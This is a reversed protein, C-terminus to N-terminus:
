SRESAPLSSALSRPLRKPRRRHLAQDGPVPVIFLTREHREPETLAMQEATELVYDWQLPTLARHAGEKQPTSRNQGKKKIMRFPNAAAAGDEVLHEFFRSSISYVQNITGQSAKYREPLAVGSHQNCSEKERRAAKSSKLSFPRWKDNPMVLDGWTSETHSSSVFRGRVIPGIWDAPPNRCFELYDEADQRKLQSFPKRKILMSWLLLREVHTRYSTFTFSNDSFSRLFSRAALYGKYAEVMPEFSDLYVRVCVM